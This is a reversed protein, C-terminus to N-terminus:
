QSAPTTPNQAPTTRRISKARAPQPQEKGEARAQAQVETLTPLKLFEIAETLAAKEHADDTQLAVDTLKPIADRSGFQVAAERAANRIEPDRNTLESLITDLSTADDAMALDGLEAVRQEVYAEHTSAGPSTLPSKVEVGAAAGPATVAAPPKEQRDAASVEVKQDAAPNNPNVQVDRKAPLLLWLGLLLVGTGAM